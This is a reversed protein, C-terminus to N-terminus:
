PGQMDALAVGATDEHKALEYSEEEGFGSHSKQDGRV